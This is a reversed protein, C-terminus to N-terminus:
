DSRYNEISLLEADKNVAIVQDEAVVVIDSTEEASNDNLDDLCCLFQDDEYTPFFFEPKDWLTKDDVNFHKTQKSHDNLEKKCPFQENCSICKLTIIQRRIYNVIKIKQYINFSAVAAGFNFNHNEIMHKKVADLSNNNKMCFLCTIPPVEGDWDSWDTDSNQIDFLSSAGAAESYNGARDLCNTNPSSPMILDNNKYNTLFYKDFTTNYPNIRKHGKKRMHEKLTSRNKFTKECYLCISAELQLKVQDILDDIFVLNEPKGLQLFHKQFLHEIFARRTPKIIDRCYLCERQYTQDTRELQHQALVKKLLDIKMKKRIFNDNLDIDSLLFYKENKAKTGDPLQDLIMTTCFDAINHGLANIINYFLNFSEFLIKKGKFLPLWFKIYTVIDKLEAIDSIVLRHGMFLHALYDDKEKPFEYFKECFFCQINEIIPVTELKKIFTLPGIITSKEM